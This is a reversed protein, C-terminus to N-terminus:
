ELSCLWGRMDSGAAVSDDVAIEFAVISLTEEHLCAQECVCSLLLWELTPTIGRLLKESVRLSYEQQQAGM